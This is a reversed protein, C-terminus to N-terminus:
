EVACDQLAWPTRPAMLPLAYVYEGPFLHSRAAEQGPDCVTPGDRQSRMGAIIVRPVSGSQVGPYPHGPDDAAATIMLDDAQLAAVLSPVQAQILLTSSPSSASM